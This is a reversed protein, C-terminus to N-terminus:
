WGRVRRYELIRGGEGGRPLKTTYNPGLRRKGKKGFQEGATTRGWGDGGMNSPRTSDLLFFSLENVQIELTARSLKVQSVM